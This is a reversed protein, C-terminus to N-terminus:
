LGMFDDQPQETQQDEEDDEEEDSEEEPPPTIETIWNNTGLLAQAKGKSNSKTRDDRWGALAEFSVVQADYLAKFLPLIFKRQGGNKKWAFQCAFLVKKEAELDEQVRLLLPAYEAIVDYKVVTKSVFVKKFVQAHIIPALKVPFQTPELKANIIALIDSISAGSDFAAIVEPSLDPLPKLFALEETDLFKEFEEGSLGPNVAALIEKGDVEGLVNRLAINGKSKLNKMVAGAVSSRDKSSEVKALSELFYEVTFKSDVLSNGLVIGIDTPETKSLDLRQFSEVLADESLATLDVCATELPSKANAYAVTKVQQLDESYTNARAAREQKAQQVEEEKVAEKAKARDLREKDQM